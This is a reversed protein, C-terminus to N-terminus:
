PMSSGGAASFGIGLLIILVLIVVVTLGIAIYNIVLGAMAMGNGSQPFPSERIQRRAMHGCIVGPIATLILTGVMLSVIGLVLSTIALPNMPGPAYTPQGTSPQVVGGVSEWLAPVGSASQWQDMGSKWVLTDPALAGDRLMGVLQDEAVPGEQKDGQAYHWM